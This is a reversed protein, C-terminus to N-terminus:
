KVYDFRVRGGQCDAAIGGGDSATPNLNVPRSQGVDGDRVVRAGVPAVNVPPPLSNRRSM